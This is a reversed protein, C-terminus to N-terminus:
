EELRYIEVRNEVHDLELCGSQSKEKSTLGKGSGNFRSLGRHANIGLELSVSLLIESINTVLGCQGFVCLRGCDDLGIETLHSGLVAHLPISSLTLIIM